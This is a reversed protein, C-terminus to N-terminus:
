PKEDAEVAASIAGLDAPLRRAQGRKEIDSLKVNDPTKSIWKACAPSRAKVDTGFGGTWRARTLGCKLYVKAQRNRHLHACSGCTEGAPGTGPEAAYLGKIKPPVAKRMLDRREEPTMARDPVADFLGKM